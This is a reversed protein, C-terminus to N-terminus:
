VDCKKEPTELDELMKEYKKRNEIKEEEANRFDEYMKKHTLYDMNGSANLLNRGLADAKDFAIRDSIVAMIMTAGVASLCLDSYAPIDVSCSVGIPLPKSVFKEEADEVLCDGAVFRYMNSEHVRTGLLSDVIRSRTDRSGNAYIHTVDFSKGIGRTIMITASASEIMERTAPEKAKPEKPAEPEVKPSCEEAVPKEEAKADPWRTGDGIGRRFSSCGSDTDKTSEEKKKLAEDPGPNATIVVSIGPSLDGRVATLMMLSNPNKPSIEGSHVYYDLSKLYGCFEAFAWKPLERVCVIPAKNVGLKNKLIALRSNWKFPDSENAGGYDMVKMGYTPWHLVTDTILVGSAKVSVIEGNKVELAEPKKEVCYYDGGM